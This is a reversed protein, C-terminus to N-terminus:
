KKNQLDKLQKTVSKLNEDSSYSDDSDNNLKIKNYHTKFIPTYNKIQEM